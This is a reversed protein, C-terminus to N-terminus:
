AYRQAGNTMGMLRRIREQTNPHTAFLGSLGGGSLPNIIMM